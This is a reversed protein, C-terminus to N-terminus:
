TGNKRLFFGLCRQFWGIPIGVAVMKRLGDGNKPHAKSFFGELFQSLRQLWGGNTVEIKSFVIPKLSGSKETALFPTTDSRTTGHCGFM